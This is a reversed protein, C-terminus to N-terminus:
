FGRCVARLRSKSNFSPWGITITPDSWVGWRALEQPVGCIRPETIFAAISIDVEHLKNRVTLPWDTHRVRSEPACGMARTFTTM